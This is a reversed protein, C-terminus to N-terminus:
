RLVVKKVMRKQGTQVKILYIGRPLDAINLTYSNLFGSKQLVPQGVLDYVTLSEIESDSTVVLRDTAPNPFLTFDNQSLVENVNTSVQCLHYNLFEAILSDVLIIDHVDHEDGAHIYSQWDDTSFGLNEFRENMVCTGYANPYNDPVLPLAWYPKNYGCAVVPDQTQHYSFIAPNSPSSVHSTDIMGGFINVVARVDTNHGNLNLTGEIPGLDPRPDFVFPSISGASAPKESPLDLYTAALSIFGGASGGVLAIRNIDISDQAVRDKLFRIAGRTDQMGRYIARIIEHQDFTFPYDFLLKNFGLRYSITATVYGRQAYWQCLADFQSRNGGYFGGGHVMVLLPRHMNEDGVPKFINMRLSDWGGDFRLAKGYFVDYEASFGFQFDTYDETCNQASIGSVVTFALIVLLNKKMFENYESEFNLLFLEDDSNYM